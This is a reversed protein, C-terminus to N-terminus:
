RALYLLYSIANFIIKYRGKRQSTIGPGPEKKNIVASKRAFIIYDKVM